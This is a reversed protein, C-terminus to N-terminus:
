EALLKLLEAKLSEKIPELIAVDWDGPIANEVARFASDIPGMLPEAIKVLPYSVEVKLKGEGVYAGILGGDGGIATEYLTKM